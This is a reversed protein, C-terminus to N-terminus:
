GRRAGRLYFELYEHHIIGAVKTSQQSFGAVLTNLQCNNTM